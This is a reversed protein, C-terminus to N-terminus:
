QVIFDTFYVDKVIGKDLLGNVETAIQDKLFLKGQISELDSFRKSGLIHIIRDRARARNDHNMVEEFGDKNLMELNVELQITRKPDRLPDGDLNVKFKELTFVLPTAIGGGEAKQEAEKQQVLGAETIQPARWGLTSAYVLYAGGGIAVANLLAFVLTGLFVVDMPKKAKKGEDPKKEEAM